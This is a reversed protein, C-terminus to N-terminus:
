SHTNHGNKINFSLTVKVGHLETVITINNKDTYEASVIKRDTKEFFKELLKRQEADYDDANDSVFLVNGCLNNIEALLLKQEHTFKM